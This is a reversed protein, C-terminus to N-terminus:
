QNEEAELDRLHDQVLVNKENVLNVITYYRDLLSDFRCALEDAKQNVDLVRSAVRELREVNVPDSAYGFVPSALIPAEMIVRDISAGDGGVVVDGVLDGGAGGGGSSNAVELKKVQLRKALSPNSILLLDRMQALQELAVRLDESRALVEQRRYVHPPSSVSSIPGRSSSTETSALMLCSPDLKRYLKRCEAIDSELPASSSSFSKANQKQRQSNLLNTTSTLLSDIRSTVDKQHTQSTLSISGLSVELSTLREDLSLAM